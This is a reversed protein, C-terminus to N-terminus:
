VLSSSRSSIVGRVFLALPIFCILGLVFVVVVSSLVFSDNTLFPQLLFFIILGIFLMSGQFLLGLGTV